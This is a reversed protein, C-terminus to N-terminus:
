NYDILKFNYANVIDNIMRKSFVELQENTLTYNMSPIYIVLDPLSRTNAAILFGIKYDHIFQILKDNFHTIYGININSQLKTPMEPKYTYATIQKIITSNLTTNKIFRTYQDIIVEETPVNTHEQIFEVLPKMDAMTLAKSNETQNLELTSKSLIDKTFLLQQHFDFKIPTLSTFSKYPLRLPKAYYNTIVTKDSTVIPTDMSKVEIPVITKKSLATPIQITVMDSIYTPTINTLLKTKVLEEPKVYYIRSTDLAKYYVFVTLMLNNDVCNSVNYCSVENYKGIYSQITNIPDNNFTKAPVKLVKTYISTSFM